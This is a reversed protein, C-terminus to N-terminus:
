KKIRMFLNGLLKLLDDLDEISYIIESLMDFFLPNTYTEIYSLFKEFYKKSLYYTIEDKFNKNTLIKTIADFSEYAAIHQNENFINYFM